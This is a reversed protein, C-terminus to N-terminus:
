SGALINLDQSKEILCFTNPSFSSALVELGGGGVSGGVRVGEGLLGGVVGREM